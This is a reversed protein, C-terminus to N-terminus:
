ATFGLTSVFLGKLDSLETERASNATVQNALSTAQNKNANVMQMLRTWTMTVISNDELLVDVNKLTNDTVSTLNSGWSVSVVTKGNYTM